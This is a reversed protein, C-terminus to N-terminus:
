LDEELPYFILAFFYRDNYVVAANSATRSDAGETPGRM